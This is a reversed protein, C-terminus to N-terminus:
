ASKRKPMSEDAVHSKVSQHLKYWALVDAMLEAPYDNDWWRELDLGAEVCACFSEYEGVM